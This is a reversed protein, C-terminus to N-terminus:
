VTMMWGLKNMADAERRTARYMSDVKLYMGSNRFCHQGNNVHEPVVVYTGLEPDYLAWHAENEMAKAKKVADRKNSAWVDNFGTVKGHENVWNFHYNYEGRSNKLLRERAM